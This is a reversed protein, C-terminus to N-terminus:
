LLEWSEWVFEYNWMERHTKELLSRIRSRADAANADFNHFQVQIYKIRKVLGSDIIAPLLDFEGGEINIKILDIKEIGLDAVAETISRLEAQQKVSGDVEKKFSSSEDHVNIELRGSRAALGYNFCAISSNGSFRKVCRDYFLPVPEFIYIRCGFKKYIEDAYDGVYGGVDFVISTQNLPYDLRATEDGREQYWRALPKRLLYVDIINHVRNTIKKLITM